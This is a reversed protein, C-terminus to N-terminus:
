RADGLPPLEPARLRRRRETLSGLFAKLDGKEEPSLDLRKLLPSKMPFLPDDKRSEPRRLTAMGASYMNIVGDLDFVGLHMYPATREVNRL